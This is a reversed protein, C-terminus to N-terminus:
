GSRRRCGCRRIGVLRELVRALRQLEIRRGVARQKLLAPGVLALAAEVLRDVANFRAMAM